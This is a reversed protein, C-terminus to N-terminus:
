RWMPQLVNEINHCDGLNIWFLCNNFYGRVISDSLIDNVLCSKGYGMMGHIVLKKNWQLNEIQHRVEGM